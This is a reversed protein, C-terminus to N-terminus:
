PRRPPRARFKPPYEVAVNEGDNCWCEPMKGPERHTRLKFFPIMNRELWALSQGPTLGELYRGLTMLLEGQDVFHSLAIVSLILLPVVSLLAYYAVAGALLLGQNKKFGKLVRWAFKGPNKVVYEAQHSLIRM